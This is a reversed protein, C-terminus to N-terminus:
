ENMALLLEIMKDEDEKMDERRFIVVAKGAWQRSDIYNGLRYELLAFSAQFHAIRRQEGNQQAESLGQRIIQRASAYEGQNLAIESLWNNAYNVFREWGIQTGEVRVKEFMEAAGTYNNQRFLIEGRYYNIRVLARLKDRRDLNSTTAIREELGLWAHAKMYKAQTLRYVAFYNALRALNAFDLYKRLSYAKILNEQAERRYEGGILTMTWGKSAYAEALLDKQGRFNRTKEILYDLISIRDQWYGFIDLYNELSNWFIRIDNIRDNDFCWKIVGQLNGHESKLFSYRYGWEKKDKYGYKKSLSKYWEIWRYRAELAFQYDEELKLRAYRRTLSVVHYRGKDHRVLSLRTLDSICEATLLESQNAVRALAALVPPENFVGFCKFVNYADKSLVKKIEEFCFEMTNSSFKDNRNLLMTLDCDYAKLGVANIIALPIGGFIKYILQADSRVIKIGNEEAYKRALEISEKISLESLNLQVHYGYSIRSTLIAKTGVPIDELFAMIDTHVDVGGDFTELNDIILLTPQRALCDYVKKVQTERPAQMISQDDLVESIVRFVDSLTSERAPRPLIRQYSLYNSKASAFIVSEFYPRNESIRGSIGISCQRAAEVALATKGIGGIGNITMIYPRKSPSLFDFLKELEYKRGLFTSYIHIPINSKSRSIYYNRPKGENVALRELILNAFQGPTQEDLESFGGLGFLGEPEFHDFRSLMISFDCEQKILGYIALWELGCWQKQSYERSFICVVLDVETSYLNTLHFALKPRSFEAEHFKDYLIAERGFKKALTDAVKAVFDRKEGAFSFAVRFRNNM